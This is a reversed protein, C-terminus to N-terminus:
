LLMVKCCDEQLWRQQVTSRQDDRLGAHYALSSIGSKCLEGSM